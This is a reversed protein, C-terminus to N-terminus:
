SFDRFIGFRKKKGLVINIDKTKATIKDLARIKVISERGVIIKKKKSKIKSIEDSPTDGSIKQNKKLRPNYYM